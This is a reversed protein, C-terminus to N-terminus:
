PHFSLVISGMSGWQRAAHKALSVYRRLFGSAADYYESRQQHDMYRPFREQLGYWRVLYTRPEWVLQPISNLYGSKEPGLLFFGLM